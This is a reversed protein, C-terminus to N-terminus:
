NDIMFEEFNEIVQGKERYLLKKLSERVQKYFEASTKEDADFLFNKDEELLITNEHAMELQKILKMKNNIYNVVRSDLEEDFFENCNFEKNKEHCFEILRGILKDIVNINTRVFKKKRNSYIKYKEEEIDDCYINQNEPFDPNFYIKKTMETFIKKDKRINYMPQVFYELPIKSFDEKGFSNIQVNTININYNNTINSVTNEIKKVSVQLEDIKKISEQMKDIKNISVQLQEVKKQLDKNDEIIKEFLKKNVLIEENKNKISKIKISDNSSNDKDKIEEIENNLTSICPNKRKNKHNIYTSKKYFIKNCKECKYEVM